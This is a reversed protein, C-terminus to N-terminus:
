HNSAKQDKQGDVHDQYTKGEPAMYKNIIKDYLSNEALVYSAVANNKSPLALKNYVALNLPKSTRKVSQAWNQFDTESLSHATFKMGSFGEGSINASAGKYTGVQDAMLHLKTSMGSMAYIQGGLAPIWFSNMPADSTVVFDVPTKEPFRVENVTAIKQEPYIFLWKWQLAVVQIKVSPKDSVIPKFPDLTHSSLFTVISLVIIILVPFGWWIAELINNHDWDPMHKAKKNGARYKWSIFITLGFVPVIILLMLLVAFQLLSRQQSAIFGEPNLIPVSNNLAIFAIVSTIAIVYLVILLTGAIGLKPLKRGM